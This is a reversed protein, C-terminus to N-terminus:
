RMVMGVRYTMICSRRPSALVERDWRRFDFIHWCIEKLGLSAHSHQHPSPLRLLSTCLLCFAVIGSGAVLNQFDDGTDFGRDHLGDHLHWCGGREGFDV